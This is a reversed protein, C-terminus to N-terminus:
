IIREGKYIENLMYDDDELVWIIDRKVYKIKDDTHSLIERIEDHIRKIEPAHLDKVKPFIAIDIDSFVSHSKLSAGNVVSGFIWVQKCLEKLVKSNSLAEIYKVKGKNFKSFDVRIM